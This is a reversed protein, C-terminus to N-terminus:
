MCLYLCQREPYCSMPRCCCHLPNDARIDCLSLIRLPVQLISSPLFCKSLLSHRVRSFPDLAPTRRHTGASRGRRRCPEHHRERGNSPQHHRHRKTPGRRTRGEPGVQRRLRMLPIPPKGGLLKVPSIDPANTPTHWRKPLQLLLALPPARARLQFSLAPLALHFM